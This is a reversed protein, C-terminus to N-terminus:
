TAEIHHGVYVAERLPTTNYFKLQADRAAARNRTGHASSSTFSTDSNRGLAATARHGVACSARLGAVAFAAPCKIGNWPYLGRRLPLGALVHMAGILAAVERRSAIANVTYHGHKLANKHV